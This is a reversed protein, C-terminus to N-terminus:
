EIIKKPTKLKKIAEKVHAYTMGGEWSTHVVREHGHHYSLGDMFDDDDDDIIIYHKVEPHESLWQAIEMGRNDNLTTTFLNPTMDIVRSSDIGYSAVKEKLWDLSFKIRWSSSIVVKVEPYTDLVMQFNSTCVNCLTRHVPGKLGQEKFQKRRRDEYLFSGESNLVGDLDLFVVKM